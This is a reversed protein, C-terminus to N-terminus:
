ELMLKLTTHTHTHTKVDEICKKDFMVRSGAQFIGGQLVCDSLDGELAMLFGVLQRRKMSFLKKKELNVSGQGKQKCKTPSQQKWHFARTEHKATTPNIM